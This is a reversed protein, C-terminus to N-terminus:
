EKKIFLFVSSKQDELFDVLSEKQLHNEIFLIRIKNGAEILDRKFEPFEDQSYRRQNIEIHHLDDISFEHKVLIAIERLTRIIQTNTLM